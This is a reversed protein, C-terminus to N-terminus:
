RGIINPERKEVFAALCEARDATVAVEAIFRMDQQVALALPLERGLNLALKGARVSVPPRSAIRRAVRSAAALAEGPACAEDILGIRYASDGTIPEGTLVMLKANGIGVLRSLRQMGGLGPLGGLNIEPLGLIADSSGIRLDCAMALELGGGLAYREIAAIVPVPCREIEALAAVLPTNRDVASEPASALLEKIDFGACFRGAAGHIIAVRVEERAALVSIVQALSLIMESSLANVPPRRLEVTAIGDCLEVGLYPGSADDPEAQPQHATV